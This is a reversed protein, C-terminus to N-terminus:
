MERSVPVAYNSHRHDDWRVDLHVERGYRDWYLIPVHQWTYRGPVTAWLGSLCVGPITEYDMNRIWDPHIAATTLLELGASTAADRVDCPRLGNQKDWNATLDVVVWKVSPQDGYRDPNLLRLQEKGSKLGDSRWTYQHEDRVWAWLEEFTKGLDGLWIDLTLVSSLTSNHNVPMEECLQEFQDVSFQWNRKQARNWFSALITLPPMFLGTHTSVVPQKGIIIDQLPQRIAVPDLVGELVRKELERAQAFFKQLTQDSAQKAM